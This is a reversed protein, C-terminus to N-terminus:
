EIPQIRRSVSILKKYLNWRNITDNTRRQYKNIKKMGNIQNFKWAHIKNHYKKKQTRNIWQNSGFREMEICIDLYFLFYRIVINYMATYQRWTLSSNSKSNMVININIEHNNHCKRIYKTEGTTQNNRLLVRDFILLWDIYCTQIWKMHQCNLESSRQKVCKKLPMRKLHCASKRIIFYNILFLFIEDSFAVRGVKQHFGFTKKISNKDYFWFLNRWSSKNFNDMPQFQEIKINLKDTQSQIPCLRARKQVPHKKKRNPLSLFFTFCYLNNM